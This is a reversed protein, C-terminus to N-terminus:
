NSVRLAAEIYNAYAEVNAKDYPTCFMGDPAFVPVIRAEFSGAIWDAWEDMNISYEQKQVYQFLNSLSFNTSFDGAYLLNLAPPRGLAISPKGLIAAEITATGTLTVTSESALILNTSSVHPSVLLANPLSKIREYYELPREGKMALNEKILLKWGVPLAQSVLRCMEFQDRLWPSFMLITAEPEMHLPLYCKKEKIKSLEEVNTIDYDPERRKFWKQPMRNFITQLSILKSGPFYSGAKTDKEEHKIENYRQKLRRYIPPIKQPKLYEIRDKGPSYLKTRCEDLLAVPDGKFPVKWTQWMTRLAMVRGPPLGCACFSFHAGNRCNALAGTLWYVFHDPTTSVLLTGEKVLRDIVVIHKRGFLLAEERAKPLYRESQLMLNFNVGQKEFMEQDLASFREDSIESGSANQLEDPMYVCEYGAEEAKKKALSFFTAFKVPIDGLKEKLRKALELHFSVQWPRTFFLIQKINSIKV